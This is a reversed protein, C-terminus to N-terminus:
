IMEWEAEEMLRLHLATNGKEKASEAMELLSQVIEGSQMIQQSMDAADHWGGNMAFLKGNHEGNLDTHCVGHKGPVPYGCRECFIFNLM